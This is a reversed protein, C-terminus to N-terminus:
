VTAFPMAREQRLRTPRCRHLRHCLADGRESGPASPSAKTGRAFLDTGFVNLIPRTSSQNRLILICKWGLRAYLGALLPYERIVVRTDLLGVNAFLDHIQNESFVLSAGGTAGLRPVLLVGGPKLHYYMKALVPESDAIHAFMGLSCVVDFHAEPGVFALCDSVVMAGPRRRGARAIRERGMMVLEECVDVSLSMGRSIYRWEGTCGFTM